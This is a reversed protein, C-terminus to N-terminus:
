LELNQIRLKLKKLEKLKGHLVKMQQKCQSLVVEGSQIRSETEKIMEDVM